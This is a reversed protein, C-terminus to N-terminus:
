KGATSRKLLEVYQRAGRALYEVWRPSQFDPNFMTIVGGAALKQRIKKTIANM